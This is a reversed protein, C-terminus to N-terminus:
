LLYQELTEGEPDVLWYERVGHAAYDEFKIGRDRAETSTSLIEVVFDPAPHIMQEPQFTSAKANDFFCV